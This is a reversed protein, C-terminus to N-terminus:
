IRIELNNMLGRLTSENIGLRDAAQRKSRSSRLITSIYDRRQRLQKRDFTDLATVRNNSHNLIEKINGKLDEAGIYYDKSSAFLQRIVGELERINGPWSYEEFSRIVNLRFEKKTKTENEILRCFHHVLPEIDEPRDRLAPVEITLVKLRYYLDALFQGKQILSTIEPKTAAIIRCTIPIEQLGGIRRIKKECLARLLTAQAQPTLHHIEDLFITGDGISELMGIKRNDAGTFAGKEYGFLESEILNNQAFSACNLGYFSNMSKPHLARAILEKGVGTEGTLLVPSGLTAYKLASKAVEAMSESCGIMGITELLKQNETPSAPKSVKMEEYKKCALELALKLKDRSEDKDIFDEIGSRYSQKITDGSDDCSYMLIPLDPNIEKIKLATEAGSMGPMRYDLLVAAYDSFANQILKLGDHGNTAVDVSYECAELFIKNAQLNEVDDDITLIRYKM